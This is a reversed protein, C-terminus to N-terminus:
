RAPEFSVLEHTERGQQTVGRVVVEIEAKVARRMTPAYWMTTKIDARMGQYGPGDGLTQIKWADFRGAPVAVSERGVVRADVSTTQKGAGTAATYYELAVGKWSQGAKLPMDAPLYPSFELLSYGGPLTVLPQFRTTVLGTEVEREGLFGNFGAVTIRERLRAGNVDSIQITYRRVARGSDLVRYNWKDGPRAFANSPESGASSPVPVTNGAVAPPGPDTLRDRNREALERIWDAPIAFNLNQGEKFQFTIIGVLRANQDFLGGGSSGPSVAADTQILPPAGAQMERLASIIGVTITRELGRPASVAFVQQGPELEKWSGVLTAPRGEPFTDDLRLQCLDRASDQFRIRASRQVYGQVVTIKTAEEVVHCSTVVGLPEVIVGSGLSDGGRGVALVVVISPDASKFVERAELAHAPNSALAFVALSLAALVRQRM